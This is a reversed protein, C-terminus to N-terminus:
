THGSCICYYQLRFDQIQKYGTLLDKWTKDLHLNKDNIYFTFNL